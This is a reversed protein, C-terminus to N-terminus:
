STVFDNGCLYLFTINSNKKIIDLVYEKTSKNITETDFMDGAIIIAEVSNENAYDIMRAFTRLLEAKRQKAQESTLSSEMKSNLHLDSTHIIKM